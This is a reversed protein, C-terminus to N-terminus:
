EVDLKGVVGEVALALLLGDIDIGVWEGGAISSSQVITRDGETSNSAKDNGGGGLRDANPNFPTPTPRLLPAAPRRPLTPIIGADFINFITLIDESFTPSLLFWSSDPGEEVRDSLPFSACSFGVVVVVVVLCSCSSLSFSTNSFFCDWGSEFWSESRDWDGVMGEKEVEDAIFENGALLDKDELLPLLEPPLPSTEGVTLLIM